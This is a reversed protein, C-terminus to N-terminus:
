LTVASASLAFRWHVPELGAVPCEFSYIRDDLLNGLYATRREPGGFAISSINKLHRSNVKDLHPRDMRGEQFATEVEALWTPDADEIVMHQRGNPGIRILRNSVISVVWLGGEEDFALGDPFTGPGYEAVIQSDTLAGEDTVRFRRTRRAFTENVYLFNQSSDLAVENTYGLGDAVIRAGRHDVLVISGDAVDPRYALSRPEHWTSLTIWVRGRSDLAVFNCPPLPQGEVELLFPEQRGDRTVRWVGGPPLLNACLFDGAPTLAFGNTKVAPAGGGLFDRRSGDPGLRSVGGDFNAVYVAGDATALVCEPRVLSKGLEGLQDPSLTFDDLTM